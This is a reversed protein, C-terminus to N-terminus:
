GVSPHRSKLTIESFEIEAHGSDVGKLDLRVQTLGLPVPVLYVGTKRADLVIRNNILAVLRPAVKEIIFTLEYELEPDLGFIMYCQDEHGSQNRQLTLSGATSSVQSINNHMWGLQGSGKSVVGFSHLYADTKFSEQMVKASNIGEQAM